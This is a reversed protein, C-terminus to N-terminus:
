GTPRDGGPGESAADSDPSSGSGASGGNGAAPSPGAAAQTEAKTEPKADLTPRRKPEPLPSGAVLLAVEEDDITERELLAMALSDLIDRENSLIDYARKKGAEILLRVEQDIVEATEESTHRNQVIERGLFVEEDPRGFSIPGLRESMGWECVMRKSLNTAMDIDGKAGNTIEDFVLEEAVRGGMLIAMRGELYKKNLNYKETIPLQYTAGLSRGRPVITVKEIPDAQPTRVAVLTHGAEHYAIVEKEKETLILSKREAGMGVKDKADLLDIMTVEERNRRAALLAGENML